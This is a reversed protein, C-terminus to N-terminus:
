RVIKYSRARKRHPAPPRGPKGHHLAKMMGIHADMMPGRDEAAMLVAEGATQWEPSQQKAKPLALIFSAADRLTIIERGGPLSIPDDFRRFWGQPANAM